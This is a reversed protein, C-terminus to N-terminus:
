LSLEHLRFGANGKTKENRLRTIEELLKKRHGIETPLLEKLEEKTLDVFQKNGICAEEFM